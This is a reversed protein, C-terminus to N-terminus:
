SLAYSPNVRLSPPKQGPRRRQAKSLAQRMRLDDAPPREHPVHECYGHGIWAVTHGDSFLSGAFAGCRNCVGYAIEFGGNM